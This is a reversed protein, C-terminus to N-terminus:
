GVAGVTIIPLLIMQGKVLSIEQIIQRMFDAEDDIELEHDTIIERIFDNIKINGASIIIQVITIPM